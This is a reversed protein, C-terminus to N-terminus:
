KNLCQPNFGPGWPLGPVCEVLSSHGRGEHHSKNLSLFASIERTRFPWNQSLVCCGSSLASPPCGAHGTLSLSSSQSDSPKCRGSWSSPRPLFQPNERGQEEAENCHDHHSLSLIVVMVSMNSVPFSLCLFPSIEGEGLWVHGLQSAFGRRRSWLRARVPDCVAGAAGASQGGAQQCLRVM